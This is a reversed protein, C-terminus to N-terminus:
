AYPNASFGLAELDKESRRWDKKVKIRLDLYVGAQMFEEIDLRAKTSLEKLAAGKRGILIGKQTDREVVIEAECRDKKGRTRKIYNVVRVQCAYPVEKRYLLFLKERIIEGIFFREPHESLVDKPYLSPGLPCNDVCFARVDEVGAGTRASCLVVRTDEGHKSKIDEVLRDLMSRDEVLDVKNLVVTVPIRGIHRALDMRDLDVEPQYSADVIVLLIDADRMAGKIATMMGRDLASKAHTPNLIGPTDVFMLQHAPESLIGLIRNRTTNPKYTVISLKAGVLQNMLTSKGANPMGVIAAYGSKHGPPDQELGGLGRNSDMADIDQLTPTVIVNDYDDQMETEAGTYPTSREAADAAANTQVQLELDKLMEQMEAEVAPDIPEALFEGDEDDDDDDDDDDPVESATRSIDDPTQSSCRRVISALQRYRANHQHGATLNPSVHQACARPGGLRTAHANRAYNTSLRGHAARSTAHATRTYSMTSFSRALKFLAAAM